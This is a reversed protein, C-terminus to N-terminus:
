ATVLEHCTKVPAVRESHRHASAAAIGRPTELWYAQLPTPKFRRRQIKDGLLLLFFRFVDVIPKWFKPFGEETSCSLKVLNILYDRRDSSTSLLFFRYIKQLAQKLAPSSSHQVQTV